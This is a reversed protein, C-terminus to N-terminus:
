DVACKKSVQDGGVQREIFPCGYKAGFPQGARQQVPEGVVDVDQLHVALAEPQGGALLGLSSGCLRWVSVGTSPM